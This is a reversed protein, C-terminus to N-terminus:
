SRVALRVEAPVSKPVNSIEEKLELLIHDGECGSGCCSGRPPDMKWAARNRDGEELYLKATRIGDAAKCTLLVFPGEGTVRGAAYARPMRAAAYKEWHTM